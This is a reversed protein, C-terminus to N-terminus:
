EELSFFRRPLGLNTRLNRFRVERKLSGDPTREEVAVPLWSEKDILFRYFTTTGPLFHDRALVRIDVTSESERFESKGRRGDKLSRGINEILLGMHTQDIRQGSPESLFSSDPDLRLRFLPAWPFPRVLVKGGPDPYILVAGSHPSDFDMRVMDPKRFTYTFRREEPSDTHGYCVVRVDTQYDEVDTYSERMNRLIIASDAGQAGASPSPSGLALCILFGLISVGGPNDRIRHVAGRSRIVGNGYKENPYVSTVGPL